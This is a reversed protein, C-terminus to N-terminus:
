RPPPWFPLLVGLLTAMVRLVRRVRGLGHGPRRRFRRRAADATDSGAAVFTITVTVLSTLGSLEEQRQLVSDLEAGRGALESEIRVIDDISVAQDLLM